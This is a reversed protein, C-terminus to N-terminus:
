AMLTLPIMDDNHRAAIFGSRVHVAFMNYQRQKRTKLRRTATQNIIKPSLIM